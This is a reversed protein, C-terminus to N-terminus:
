EGSELNTGPRSQLARLEDELAQAEPTMVAGMSSVPASSEQRRMEQQKREAKKMEDYKKSYARYEQNFDNQKSRAYDEFNKRRERVDSEFDSRRDREDAFYESRKESQEQYFETRQERSHKDRNFEDRARQSDKLFTERKKRETKTFEERERSLDKNFLERKKRLIQDFQNRVESPPRKVESMLGLILALEDNERRRDEPEQSRLHDLAQRDASLSYKEDVLPRDGNDSRYTNRRESSTSCAGLILALTSALFVSFISKETM